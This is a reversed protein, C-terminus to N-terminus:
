QQKNKTGIAMRFILFSEGNKRDYVFDEALIESLSGGLDAKQYIMTQNVTLQTSGL